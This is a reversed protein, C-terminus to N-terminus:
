REVMREPQKTLDAKGIDDGTSTEFKTDAGAVLLELELTDKMREFLTGVTLRRNM